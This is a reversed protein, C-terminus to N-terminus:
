GALTALIATQYGSGTGIELTKEAGTFQALQALMGVTYPQSITQGSGIPGAWDDYARDALAQDVFMHRPVAQMAELVRKDSIGMKRVHEEVMRQRRAAYKDKM